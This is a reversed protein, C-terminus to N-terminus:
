CSYKLKKTLTMNSHVLKTEIQSLAVLHEFEHRCLLYFRVLVSRHGSISCFNILFCKLAKEVLPFSRLEANFFVVFLFCDM